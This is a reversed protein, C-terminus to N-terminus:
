ANTEEGVHHGTVRKQLNKDSERSRHERGSTRHHDDSGEGSHDYGGDHVQFKQDGEKLGVDEHDQDGEVDVVYDVEV